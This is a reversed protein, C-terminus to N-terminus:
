DTLGWLDGPTGLVMVGSCIRDMRRNRGLPPQCNRRPCHRAHCPSSMSVGSCSDNSEFWPWSRGTLSSRTSSHSIRHTKTSIEVRVGYQGVTHRHRLLESVVRIAKACSCESTKGALGLFKGSSWSQSRSTVESIQVEKQRKETPSKKNLTVACSVLCHAGAGRHERKNQEAEPQAARHSM